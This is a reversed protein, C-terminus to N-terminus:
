SSGEGLMARRTRQWQAKFTEFDLFERDTFTVITFNTALYPKMLDLDNRAAAEEFLDRMHRLAEHDEHNAEEAKLATASWLATMMVIFATRSVHM